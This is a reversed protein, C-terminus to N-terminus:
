LNQMFFFGGMYDACGRIAKIPLAGGGPIQHTLKWTKSFIERLKRPLNASPFRFNNKIKKRRQGSKKVLIIKM